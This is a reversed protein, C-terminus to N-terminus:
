YIVVELGGGKIPLMKFCTFPNPSIQFVELVRIKSTVGFKLTKLM